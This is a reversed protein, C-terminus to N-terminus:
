DVWRLLEMFEWYSLFLDGSLCMTILCNLSLSLYLIRSAALPLYGPMGWLGETLCVAPKAESVTSSLPLPIANLTSVSFVQWAFIRQEAVSNKWLPPSILIFGAGGVQSLPKPWVWGPYDGRQHGSLWSVPSPSKMVGASDRRGYCNPSHHEMM